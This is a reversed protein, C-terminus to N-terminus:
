GYPPDTVIAVIEGVTIEKLREFSDGLLLRIVQGEAM